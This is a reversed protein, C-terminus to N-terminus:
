RPGPSEGAALAQETHELNTRATPFGPRLRLGERFENLAEAPRDQALWVSGMLSALSESRQIVCTVSETALPHVTWL